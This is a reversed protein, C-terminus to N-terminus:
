FGSFKAKRKHGLGRYHLAAPCSSLPGVEGDNGPAWVVHILVVGVDVQVVRVGLLEARVPAHPQGGDLRGGRM